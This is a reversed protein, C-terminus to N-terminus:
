FATPPISAVVYGENKERLAQLADLEEQKALGAQETNMIVRLYLWWRARAEILDEAYTTWDNEANDTALATYKKTYYIRVTRVANPVLYLWMKNQYWAYHSPEGRTDQPNAQEIWTIDKKTLQYDSGSVVIEVYDIEGIDSPLGDATGYAKTGAVTTFTGTTEKFWFPEKQYHIIARNIAKDIQTSLDSRDLDDAIRTRMESLTSM